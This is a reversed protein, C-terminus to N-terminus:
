TARGPTTCSDVVKGLLAYTTRGTGGLPNTAVAEVQPTSAQNSSAMQMHQRKILHM